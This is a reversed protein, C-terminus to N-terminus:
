QASHRIWPGWPIVARRRWRGGPFSPAIRLEQPRPSSLSLRVLCDARDAGHDDLKVPAFRVWGPGRDSPDTDPTRIAAAAVAPDLAFEAVVGDASLIAFPRGDRSWSVADDPGIDRVIGMLEAAESELLEGLTM